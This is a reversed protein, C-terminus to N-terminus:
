SGAGNERESSNESETEPRALVGGGVLVLLLTVGLVELSIFHKQSLLLGLAHIEQGTQTGANIDPSFKSFAIGLVAVLAIGLMSAQLLDFTSRKKGQAGLEGFMSSFFLLSIGSLTAVIWQVMALVEAGFSLFIGGLSMGCIWLALVVRRADESMAAILASAVVLISLFLVVIM